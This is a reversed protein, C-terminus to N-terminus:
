KIKKRIEKKNPQNIFIDKANLFNKNEEKLLKINQKEINHTIEKSNQFLKQYVGHDQGIFFLCVNNENTESM